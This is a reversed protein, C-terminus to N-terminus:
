HSRYVCALRGGHGVQVCTEREPQKPMARSMFVGNRYSSFFSFFCPLLFLHNGLTNGTLGSAEWSNVFGLLSSRRTGDRNETMGGCEM